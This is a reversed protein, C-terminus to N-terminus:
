RSPMGWMIPLVTAQGCQPCPVRSRTPVDRNAWEDDDGGGLLLAVLQRKSVGPKVRVGIMKALAKLEAVSMSKLDDETLEEDAEEDTDAEDEEDEEDPNLILDVLTDRDLGALDDGDYGFENVAILKLARLSKTTLEDADYRQAPTEPVRTGDDGDQDTRGAEDSWGFDEDGGTERARSRGPSGDPSCTM